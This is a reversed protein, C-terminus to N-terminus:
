ARPRPIGKLALHPETPIPPLHLDAVGPLGLHFARNMALRLPDSLLWPRPSTPYVRLVVSDEKNIRGRLLRGHLHGENLFIRWLAVREWGEALRENVIAEEHGGGRRLFAAWFTPAPQEPLQTLRREQWQLGAHLFAAQRYIATTEFPLYPLGVAKATALRHLGDEVVWYLPGHVTEIRWGRVPHKVLERIDELFHRALRLCSEPRYTFRGWKKGDGEGLVSSVPVWRLDIRGAREDVLIISDNRHAHPFKMVPSEVDLRAWVAGMRHWIVGDSYQDAPIGQRWAEMRALNANMAGRADM